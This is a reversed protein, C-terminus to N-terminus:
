RKGWKKSYIMFKIYKDESSSTLEMIYNGDTDKLETTTSKDKNEFDKGRYKGSSHMENIIALAANLFSFSNTLDDDKTLDFYYLSVKSGDDLNKQVFSKDCKLDITTTYYTRQKVSDEQIVSGSNVAFENQGDKILFEINKRYTVSDQAKLTNFAAFLIIALFLKKM